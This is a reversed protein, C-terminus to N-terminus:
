PPFFPNELGSFLIASDQALLPSPPFPPLRGPTAHRGDISLPSSSEFEFVIQDLNAPPSLTPYIRTFSGLPPPDEEFLPSLPNFFFFLTFDGLLVDIATVICSPIKLPFLLPLPQLAELLSFPRLQQKGPFNTDFAPTNEECSDAPVSQTVRLWFSPPSLRLTKRESFLCRAAKNAFPPLFSQPFFPAKQSLPSAHQLLHPSLFPALEYREDYASPCCSSPPDQM